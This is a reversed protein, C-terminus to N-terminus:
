GDDSGRGGVRRHAEHVQGALESSYSWGGSALPLYTIDGVIVQRAERAANQEDLLLNPSPTVTLRSDTTRPTFRRPAIAQLSQRRM